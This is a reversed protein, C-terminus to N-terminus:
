AADYDIGALAAVQTFHHFFTQGLKRAASSEGPLVDVYVGVGFKATLEIVLDRDDEDITTFSEFIVHVLLFEQSLEGALATDNL